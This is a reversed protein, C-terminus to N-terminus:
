PGLAHVGAWDVACALDVLSMAYSTKPMAKARCQQESCEEEEPPSTVVQERLRELLVGSEANCPISCQRHWMPCSQQVVEHLRTVYKPADGKCTGQFM